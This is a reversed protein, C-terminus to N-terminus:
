VKVYPLYKPKWMLSSILAELNETVPATALGSQIAEEAVAVAIKLSLSRIQNLSPLLNNKPNIKAPSDDALALAASMLMRDSVQQAKVAILGLGLGPFIYANNTQDVKFREGRFIVTDFPSGTAIIAKGQSWEILDVPIAESYATPNSLSFIIPQAVQESMNKVIAESFIGGQGSVGILVTPKINDVVDKFSIRNPDQLKWNAIRAKPQSFPKQFSLLDAMDETLLGQQDVLFLNQQSQQKSLGAESMVLSILQAIGCGASGAGVIIIRHQALPTKTKYIAALLTGVVVAATGQIDDNFTCLQSRYRTLIPNANIKAFDEWHLFINPFRKKVASVFADIFDDYAQGRIREHRWGVYLPDQRLNSNDTGTDLLVPLTKSPHIGACGTYLSLKGIPIGMGGAGQDGLGLIREGDSVVIIQTAEFSPNNLIKEIREKDPYAIFVGRPRRYIHSFKQCGEGVTPTYIIPLMEEFDKTILAYFLTENSDQLDRLYLHKEIPTSKSLFANHSRQLQEELSSEYPPILGYLNFEDRERATFGMGKNLLPNRILSYDATKVELYSKGSSNKIYKYDVTCRM